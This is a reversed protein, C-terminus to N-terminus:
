AHVLEQAQERVQPGENLFWWWRSRSHEGLSPLMQAVIKAKKVLKLDAAQMRQIQEATLTDIQDELVDRDILILPVNTDYYDDDQLLDVKRVYRPLLNEVRRLEVLSPVGM